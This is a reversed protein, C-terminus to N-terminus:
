QLKSMCDQIFLNLAKHSSGGVEIAKMASEQIEQARKRMPNNEEMVSGVMNKIEDRKKLALLEKSRVAVGAEDTLFAANMRQEAYLPWAIMPLSKTIGELTSNWGCHSMFGGISPHSLIEVQHAWRTIVMGVNCTRTLFGHPLFKGLIEEATDGEGSGGTFFAADAQGGEVPPRVKWLFRRGSLELGWALETVQDASMTGGSGFSVYLVSERPQRDLWTLTSDRARDCGDARCSGKLPGIAYVPAKVLSSLEENKRLAELTGHELDEWTNLLIGDSLGFGIGMRVYEMYQQDRRDLMPDVVDEPRVPKCGPIWLPETRDVFQGEVEKDLVQCYSTLSLFWATSPFFVYKPMRFEDALEFSETGFLDAIFLTRTRDMESLALRINSRSQRMEVAIKTFLSANADIVGSIDAPPLTVINLDEPSHLFQYAPPTTATLITVKFGHHLILTNALELIPNFHGIGPSCLIVAHLKSTEM